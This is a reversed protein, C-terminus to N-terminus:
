PQTPGRDSAGRKKPKLAASRAESLWTSPRGKPRPASTALRELVVLAENIGELEERLERLAKELDM